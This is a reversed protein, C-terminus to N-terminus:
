DDFGSGNPFYGFEVLDNGGFEIHKAPVQTEIVQFDTGKAHLECYEKSLAVWNGDELTTVGPPAARYVTVMADPKGKVAKLVATSEARTRTSGATMFLNLNSYVDRPLSKGDDLSHISSGGMPQHSMRYSEDSAVDWASPRQERKRKGGATALTGLIFNRMELDESGGAVGILGGNTGAFVSEMGMSMIETTGHDYSRGMYRNTFHDPRCMERGGPHVPVLDEEEMVGPFMKSSVTSTRRRLFASELANVSGVSYEARHGFEHVATAFNPSRGEAQSEIRGGVLIEAADETAVIQECMRRRRWYIEGNEPDIWQEWPEKGKGAYPSGDKKRRVNAEPAVVDWTGSEYVPLQALLSKRTEPDFVTSAMREGTDTWEYGPAGGDAGIAELDEPRMTRRVKEQGLEFIKHSYWESYYARGKSSKAVLPSYENSNELWETPYVAAAEQFISVAAPDSDPHLEVEGGMPRIEELAALYGDSLRRMNAQTEEDRGDMLPGLIDRKREYEKILESALAFDRARFAESHAANAADFEEQATDRRNQWSGRIDEATIGALEEARSAVIAGVAVAALDHSGYGDVIRRRAAQYEQLRSNVEEDSAGSEFVLGEVSLQIDEAISQILPVDFGAELTEEVVEPEPPYVHDPDVEKATRVAHQARAPGPGNGSCRRHSRGSAAFEACSRCM